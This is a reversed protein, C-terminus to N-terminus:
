LLTFGSSQKPSECFRCKEDKKRQLHNKKNGTKNTWEKKSGKTITTPVNRIIVIAKPFHRTEWSFFIINIYIPNRYTFNLLLFYINWTRFLLFFFNKSCHFLGFVFVYVIIDVCVYWITHRVKSHWIFKFFSCIKYTFFHFQKLAIMIKYALPPLMKKQLVYVFIHIFFCLVDLSFLFYKSSCFFFSSVLSFHHFIQCLLKSNNKHRRNADDPIFSPM